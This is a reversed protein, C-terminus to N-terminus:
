AVSLDTAWRAATARARFFLQRCGCSRRASVYCCPERGRGRRSACARALEVNTMAESAGSPRGRSQAGSCRVVSQDAGRSWISSQLLTGLRCATLSGAGLWGLGQGALAMVGWGIGSEAQRTLRGGLRGILGARLDRRKVRWAEGPSRAVLDPGCGRFREVVSRDRHDGCWGRLRFDVVALRRKVDGAGEHIVVWRRILLRTEARAEGRVEWERTGHMARTPCRGWTQTSDSM